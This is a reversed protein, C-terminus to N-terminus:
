SFRKLINFFYAVYFPLALAGALLVGLTLWVAREWDFAREPIPVGDPGLAPPMPLAPTKPPKVM